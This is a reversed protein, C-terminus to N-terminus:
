VIAAALKAVEDPYFIADWGSRALADLDEQRWTGDVVLVLKKVGARSRFARATADWTYRLAVARGCLEKKKHDRGADTASQWKILTSKVKLVTTAGSGVPTGAKEAFCGQIRLLKGKSLDPHKEILGRIPDFGRHAMLTAEYEKAIYQELIKNALADIQTATLGLLQESLVKAVFVIAIKPPSFQPKRTFYQNFFCSCWKGLSMNGVSSSKADPHTAFHSYGFAQAKNRQAKKLASIFDFLWVGTPSPVGPPVVIGKAPSSHQSEVYRQMGAPTQLEVLNTVVFSRYQDILEIARVKSVQDRFGQTAVHNLLSGLDTASLPSQSLWGLETDIVRPSSISKGVLGLHHMWPAAKGSLKIDKSPMQGLLAAKTFSRRVHTARASPAKAKHRAKEFHWLNDLEPRRRKISAVLDKALRSLAAKLEGGEHSKKSRLRVIEKVKEDGARPLTKHHSEVWSLLFSGYPRSEIVIQDDFSHSQVAILDAKIVSDFAINCVSPLHAGLAKIEVLEGINRWFKMDSNKISGSHTVLLVHNPADKTLGITFDPEISMGAPTENWFVTETIARTAVLDDLCLKILAEYALGKQEGAM